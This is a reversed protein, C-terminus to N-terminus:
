VVRLTFALWLVLCDVGHLCKEDPPSSSLFLPVLFVIRDARHFSHRQADSASAISTPTGQQMVYVYVCM